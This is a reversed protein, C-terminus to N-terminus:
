QVLSDNARVHSAPALALGKGSGTTLERLGKRGVDRDDDDDDDDRDDWSDWGGRVSGRWNWGLAGGPTGGGLDQYGSGHEDLETHLPSMFPAMDDHKDSWLEPSWPSKPMLVSPPARPGCMSLLVPLVALGQGDFTLLMAYLSQSNPTSFLAARPTM